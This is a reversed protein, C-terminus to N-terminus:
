RKLFAAGPPPLRFSFKSQRPDVLEAQPLAPIALPGPQLVTVGRSTASRWLVFNRDVIKSLAEHEDDTMVLTDRCNSVTALACDASFHIRREDSITEDLIMAQFLPRLVSMRADYYMHKFIDEPGKESLTARYLDLLFSITHGMMKDATELAVFGQWNLQLRTKEDDTGSFAMLRKFFDTVADDSLHWLIPQLLHREDPVADVICSLGAQLSISPRREPPTWRYACCYVCLLIRVSKLRQMILRLQSQLPQQEYGDCGLVFCVLPWVFCCGFTIKYFLWVVDEKM